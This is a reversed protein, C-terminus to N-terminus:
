VLFRGGDVVLRAGTMARMTVAAYVAEAVDEPEVVMRLPTKEAIKELAARDRGAVFDTAVAGPSVAVVRVEPGLARALALTMTDLAGKAACYAVNSGSGTFGSISSLNVVLGGGSSRLMPLFARILSFPGRVNSVLIADFLADDLADLDHHPIPKTFGAANVLVDVHGFAKGIATAAEEISPADSLSLSFPFHGAGALSDVVSRAEAENRHFGVAVRAGAAALRRCCAAGIGGSGGVVVATRLSAPAGPPRTADGAIGITM